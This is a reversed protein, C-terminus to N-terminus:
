QTNHQATTHKHTHLHTNQTHTQHFVKERDIYIFNHITHAQTQVSFQRPVGLAGSSELKYMSIYINYINRLSNIHIPCLFTDHRTNTDHPTGERNINVLVKICGSEYIVNSHFEFLFFCFSRIFINYPSSFHIHHVIYMCMTLFSFLFFSERDNQEVCRLIM